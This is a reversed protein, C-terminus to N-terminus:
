EESLIHLGMDLVDKSYNNLVAFKRLQEKIDLTYSLTIDRSIKKPDMVLEFIGIVGSINIDDIFSRIESINDNKSIINIKLQLVDNEKLPLFNHLEQKISEFNGKLRIFRRTDVSIHEVALNDNVVLFGPLTDWDNFDLHTLTGTYFIRDQIKQYIHFHGAIVLDFHKLLFDSSIGESAKVVTDGTKYNGGIISDHCILLTKYQKSLYKSMIEENTDKTWRNCVYPLLCFQYQRNELSVFVGDSIVHVYESHFHNTPTFSTTFRASDHNGSLLYIHLKDVIFLDLISCLVAWDISTPNRRHFIDGAVFVQQIQEKKAYQILQKICKILEISSQHYGNTTDIEGYMNQGIHWDATVVIKM